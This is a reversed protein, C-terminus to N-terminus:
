RGARTITLFFFLFFFFSFFFFSFSGAWKHVKGNRTIVASVSPFHFSLYAGSRTLSSFFELVHFHRHYWNYNAFETYNGFSHYMSQLDQFYFSSHIDDLSCYQQSWGSYQSFEQLSSLSAAVWVGTSFWWSISAHFVRLYTFYYYFRHFMFSVTIGTTIPASPVIGLPNTFPSSSRSILLGTSAMWVLPNNLHALISLLTRSVVTLFRWIVSSHFIMLLTFYHHNNFYSTIYYHYHCCCDYYYNNNYSTIYYYYYYYYYYHRDM